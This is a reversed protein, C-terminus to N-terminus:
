RGEEGGSEAADVCNEARGAIYCHAGWGKVPMAWEGQVEVLKKGLDVDLM